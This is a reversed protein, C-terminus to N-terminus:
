RFKLYIHKVKLGKRPLVQLVVTVVGGELVLKFSPNIHLVILTHRSQVESPQMAVDIHDVKQLSITGVHFGLSVLVLINKEHRYLVIM